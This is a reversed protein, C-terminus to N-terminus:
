DPHLLDKMARLEREIFAEDDTSLLTDEAHCFARIQEIEFCADSLRRHDPTSLQARLDPLLREIRRLLDGLSLQRQEYAEIATIAVRELPVPM